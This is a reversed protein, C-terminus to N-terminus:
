ATDSTPLPTYNIYVSEPMKERCFQPANPDKCFYTAPSM